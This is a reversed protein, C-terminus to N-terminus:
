IFDSSSTLTLWDLTRSSHVFYKRCNVALADLNPVHLCVPHSPAKPQNIRWTPRFKAPQINPQHQGRSLRSNRTSKRIQKGQKLFRENLIAVANALLLCAELICYISFGM